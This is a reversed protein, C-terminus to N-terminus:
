PLAAMAKGIEKIARVLIEMQSVRPLPLASDGLAKNSSLTMVAVPLHDQLETTPVYIPVSLFSRWRAHRSARQSLDTVDRLEPRGEIFASISASETGLGLPERKLASRDFLPGDSTAWLTLGRQGSPDARVWFELRFAEKDDTVARANAIITRLRAVSETMSEWMVDFDKASTTSEWKKWWTLLRTGYRLGLQDSLAAASGEPITLTLLLEECFQASQFRFDPTLVTLGLLEGRKVAHQTLRHALESPHETFGMSRMPVLAYRNEHASTRALAEVLPADSLSAGLIVVGTRASKFADVLEGVVRDHTTAYDHESVVLHGRYAHDRDVRGHVYTLEVFPSPRGIHRPRREGLVRVRLEPIPLGDLLQMRVLQSGLADEIYTDYNTTIIRASGKIQASWLALKAVSTSLRGAKWGNEQYLSIALKSALRTQLASHTTRDDLVYQTLVSALWAPPLNLSLSEIEEHTPYERASKSDHDFIEKILDTWGLGTRDITVGAGCYIVVRDCDCLHALARKTSEAHFFPVESRGFQTQVEDM